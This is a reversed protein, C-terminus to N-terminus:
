AGSVFSVVSAEAAESADLSELGDSGLLSVEMHCVLGESVNFLVVVRAKGVAYVDDVGGGTM